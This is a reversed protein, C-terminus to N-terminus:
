IIKIVLYLQYYIVQKVTGKESQVAIFKKDIIDLFLKKNLFNLNIDNVKYLKTNSLEIPIKKYQNVVYEPKEKFTKNKYGGTKAIYLLSNFSFLGRNFQPNNYGKWLRITANKNYKEKCNKSWEDFIEFNDNSISYLIMGIKNWLEYRECYEYPVNNLVEILEKKTINSDDSKIKVKYEEFEVIKDKTIIDYEVNTILSKKFYDKGKINTKEKNYTLQYPKLPCNKGKKTSYLIRFCTLNYISRDTYKLKNDKERIM